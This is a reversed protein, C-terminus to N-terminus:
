YHLDPDPDAIKTLVLSWQLHKETFETFCKLVVQKCVVDLLITRFIRNSEIILFM